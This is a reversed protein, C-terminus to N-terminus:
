SAQAILQDEEAIPNHVPYPGGAVVHVVLMGVTNTDPLQLFANGNTWRYIDPLERDWGKLRPTKLHTNIHHTDLRDLLTINGVLVGLDRRDGVFPGVVDSPKSTKSVLHVSSTNAPIKFIFKGNNERTKNLIEGKDTILYLGSDETIAFDSTNPTLGLTEIRQIIQNFIPEVFERDTALPAASEVNWLKKRNCISIVNDDQYFGHRNGTDLYSETLMGDAMIVSHEETEIHYYTYETISHDYYISTGNILMYAPVFHGNFFLCHEPTILLDKFPVGDAIANKLVRVPYGAKDDNLNKNVNVTNYGKWIVSKYGKVLGNYTVIQDNIQIDEVAVYGNITNIMTGSLFCIVPSNTIDSGYYRYISINSVNTGTKMQTGVYSNDWKSGALLSIVSNGNDISLTTSVGSPMESLAYKGNSAMGSYFVDESTTAGSSNVVTPSIYTNNRSVGGTQNNLTSNAVFSNQITGYNTIVLNPSYSSNKTITLGDVTAGANITLGAM